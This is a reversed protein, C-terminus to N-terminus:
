CAYKGIDRYTKRQFNTLYIGQGYDTAPSEEIQHLAYDTFVHLDILIKRTVFNTNPMIIARLSISYRECNIWRSDVHFTAVRLVYIDICSDVSTGSAIMM